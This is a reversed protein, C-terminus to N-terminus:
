SVDNQDDDYLIACYDICTCKYSSIHNLLNTNTIAQKQSNEDGKYEKQENYGYGLSDRRLTLACGPAVQFHDIIDNTITNGHVDNCAIEGISTCETEAEM